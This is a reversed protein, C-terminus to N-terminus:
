LDNVEQFVRTAVDAGAAGKHRVIVTSSDQVHPEATMRRWSNHMVLIVARAYSCSSM